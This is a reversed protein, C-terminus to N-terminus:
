VKGLIILKLGKWFPLKVPNWNHLAEIDGVAPDPQWVYVSWGVRYIRRMSVVPSVSNPNLNIDFEPFRELAITAKGEQDWAIEYKKGSGDIWITGRVQQVFLSPSDYILLHFVIRKGHELMRAQAAEWESVRYSM